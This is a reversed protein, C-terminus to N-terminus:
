DSVMLSPGVIGMTVTGTFVFLALASLVLGYVFDGWYPNAATPSPACHYTYSLLEKFAFWPDNSNWLTILAVYRRRTSSGDFFIAVFCILNWVFLFVVAYAVSIAASVFAARGGAFAVAWRDGGESPLYFPTALTYSSSPPPTYIDAMTITATLPLPGPHSSDFVRNRRQRDRAQFHEESYFMEGYRIDMAFLAPSHNHWCLWLASYRTTACTLTDVNGDLEGPPFSKRDQCKLGKGHLCCQGHIRLVVLVLGAAPRHVCVVGINRM